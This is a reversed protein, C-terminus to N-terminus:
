KLRLFATDFISELFCSFINKKLLQIVNRLFNKQKSSFSFIVDSAEYSSFHVQMREWYVVENLAFKSLYSAECCFYTTQNGGRSRLSEYIIM